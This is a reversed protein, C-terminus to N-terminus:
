NEAANGHKQEPVFDGELVEKLSVHSNLLAAPILWERYSKGEEIWEYDAIASEPLDLRIELLIEGVAGENCDLPINSLWVGSWRRDTLYTGSGDKFGCKLIADANKRTTRHYLIV